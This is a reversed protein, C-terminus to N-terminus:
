LRGTRGGAIDTVYAATSLPAFSILTRLVPPPQWCRGARRRRKEAQTRVHRLETLSPNSRVRCAWDSPSSSCRGDLDQPQTENMRPEPNKRCRSFIRRISRPWCNGANQWSAAVKNSGPVAKLPTRFHRSRPMNRHGEPERHVEPHGRLRRMIAHRARATAAKKKEIPETRPRGSTPYRVILGNQRRVKESSLPHRQWRAYGCRRDLYLSPLRGREQRSRVRARGLMRGRRPHPQAGERLSEAAYGSSQRTWQSRGLIARGTQFPYSGTKDLRNGPRKCETVYQASVQHHLPTRSHLNMQLIM